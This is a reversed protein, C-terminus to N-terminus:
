MREPVRVGLLALGNKLAQATAAMLALRAARLEPSDANLVQCDRYFGALARAMEYCWEAVVFPAYRAGAERVAGPLRALQKIVALESPHTLLQPNPTPLQPSSAIHEGLERGGDALEQDDAKRMISRCRAYMYQIYPASNGEFALMREWDLTINRRPDQYLDNYVVAGVGVIEAVAAKEDEPLEASAREVVARARAHADNLLAELYIMNGKRTSFPEGKADFITGFAVHMLEIGEADGLARALAFLQRFHLEQRADVAYIMAAPQYERERYVITAADRTHYLTGGDSRKLLFTPLGPIDVVVAGKEDRVAVGRELARAIVPEMKDEFFSEGHITDFKVGLRDYLRQNTALTLDVIWQWIARAQPDGQELKLSWARAEDDYAPNQEIKTNYTTYLRELAALAEEGAGAPKGEHVISMILVGFQKGWDGLHNDGIVRYGLFRYINVLAQGIITSRIHGVHMRRAVNPSSYDVVVTKGAGQDDSGYREGLAAVEALVAAALRAPDLSFNLFPGATTVEAVLGGAPLVVAQALAQALQPPPQQLQKAAKFAPFALDAPINPKPSTLDILEAPVLGTAEIAARVQQEFRDLAYDM